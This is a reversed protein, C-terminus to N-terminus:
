VNLIYFCLCLDSGKIILLTPDICDIASRAYVESPRVFLLYSSSCFAESLVFSAELPQILLSYGYWASRFTLGELRLTGRELHLSFGEIIRGQHFFAGFSGLSTGHYILATPDEGQLKLGLTWPLGRWSHFRRLSNRGGSYSLRVRRLPITRGQQFNGL